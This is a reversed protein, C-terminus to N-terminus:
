ESEDNAAFPLMLQGPSLRTGRRRPSRTRTRKPTRKPLDRVPHPQDGRLEFKETVEEVYHPHESIFKAIGRNDEAAEARTRYPGMERFIEGDVAYAPVGIIWWGDHQKVIQM